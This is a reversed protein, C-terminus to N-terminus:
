KDVRVGGLERYAIGVLKKEILFDHFADGCDMDIDDVLILANKKLSAYILEIEKKAHEYTHLSDHFFLDIDDGLRSLLKPIEELSDGLVLEWKERLYDPVLWGVQKDRTTTFSGDKLKKGEYNPLDISFLMGKGNHKLALLILASSKGAAVGTEIIVSPNLARVIVYLSLSNFRVDGAVDSYKNQFEELEDSWTNKFDADEYFENLFRVIDNKSKNTIRSLFELYSQENALLSVKDWERDKPSFQDINRSIREYSDFGYNIIRRFYPIEVSGLKKRLKIRQEM